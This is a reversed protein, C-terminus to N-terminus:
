KSQNRARLAKALEKANVEGTEKNVIEPINLESTTEKTKKFNEAFAVMEQLMFDLSKDDLSLLYDKKEAFYTEDKEIKAESFKTKISEFRAAEVEVKEKTEKYERLTTLEAEATAKATELEAIKAELESIKTKALELEEMEPKNGGELNEGDIDSDTDKREALGIFATRGAYAPVSVVTLGDLSTGYLAKVGDEEDREEAYSIEWSVNPLNGKTYQDKLMSIDEPREKKWLAALAIVKEKEELLQTITGIPKGFADKHTKPDGAESMKVPAFLGTRILNAFEELPIRQKNLNAKADTVIIKAWQFTPNLSVAAFAEGPNSEEILDIQTELNITNKM